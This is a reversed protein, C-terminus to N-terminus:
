KVMAQFGKYLSDAIAQMGRDSPHSAVGGNTFLGEQEASLGPVWRLGRLDVYQIQKEESVRLLQQDVVAKPYWSSTVVFLPTNKDNRKLYDVLQSFKNQFDHALALSDSVNDGFRFIVLHPTYERHKGFHKNFEALDFAYFDREFLAINDHRLVGKGNVKPHTNISKFLVHVFDKDRASAAMGWDYLWGIQPLPGNSTISNGLILVRLSDQAVVTQGKYTLTCLPEVRTSSECSFLM